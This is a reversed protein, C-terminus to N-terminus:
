QCPGIGTLGRLAARLSTTQPVSSALPMIYNKPRLSLETQAGNLGAVHFNLQMPAPNWGARFFAFWYRAALAFTRSELFVVHM